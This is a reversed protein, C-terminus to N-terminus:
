NQELTLAYIDATGVDRLLMPTDEPDLGFWGELAGTPRFEKLDVVRQEAGGSIRVRFVGADVGLRMFYIFQSNASWTPWDAEGKEPLVSSRQTKLDFIKLGRPAGIHTGVIFRGNPSWRPSFTGESGPLTTVQRSALDLVRLVYNLSGITQLSHMSSFVIKRGDPSWYGDGTGGKEEPLLLEPTGGGRSPVIFSRFRGDASIQTFLIQAGDPSWHPAIPYIPPNTLQVPDSGDHNARWMIGEPFTVYTIFKGDPSFTVYEASIGGLWPQLRSSPTDFRVLEGRLIVGQAFIKTGDKSPIPSNWRIPGSTLQATMAPARRFLGRREDLTWLQDGPQYGARVPRQLLFIFFKGDTTWRGCCLPSSAHWGTLLEHLGSGDSRVEWLRSGKFFRIRSGDPSWSLTSAPGGVDALKRTGTGDSGVVYLSSNRSSYMVSKGDSSWAASNVQVDTSLQRLPGAPIPVSWLRGEFSTVLLASGDPSVDQLSFVELATSIPAIEGGSIAIQAIPGMISGQTFYLRSGDTGALQKSRGDHTIRTYETVRLPPLPGRLYWVAVPLCVALLAAGPLAWTNFRKRSAATRKGARGQNDAGINIPEVPNAASVVILCKEPTTVFDGAKAGEAKGSTDLNGSADESIEVKSLFRYGVTAITEIYRPSRIDDGLLRRLQAITRTLSSETVVADGWVANLLEEKSILKQPNRLLFLLVRFTKPEVPLIEGSKVLCFERGRVEVDAFRFVTSKTEPLERM